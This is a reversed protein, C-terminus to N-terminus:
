LYIIFDLFWTIRLTISDDSCKLFQCPFCKNVRGFMFVDPYEQEKKVHLTNKEKESSILFQNLSDFLTYACLCIIYKGTEARSM